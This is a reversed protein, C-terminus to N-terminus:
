PSTRPANIRPSLSALVLATGASLMAVGLWAVSLAHLRGFTVRRADSAPLQEVPGDIERRVREIRPGVVFQAAACAVATVILAARRVRANRGGARRDLALSAAAIVMGAVFISPLIRGVLAGALTRSPLAAFAAPAVVSAFLIAAGLWASLLLSVATM